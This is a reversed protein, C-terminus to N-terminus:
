KKFGQNNIFRRIMDYAVRPQDYPLIHGANRVIIQYFDHVQRVYGAVETDEPSVKWILRDANKYENAYKWNMTNVFSETLPAAVIIDLQGSYVLVKYNNMLVEFWPKVSQFIDNILHQEVINGQNYTLNGVHIARRTEKLGIYGSYYNFDDPQITYLYNYYFKLGTYNYFYSTGNILDGNLLQDWVKFAELYSKSKIKSLTLQQQEKFLALQKEDILGIQFLFDGYDLMSEPDCLGDGIAIGKLNLGSNSGESHIKYAISPVYKGAYSEGTIYLDTKNYEHFVTFFQQLAEYLDRAVDSENTAYGSDNDTFSFGTGVPNDFYIVNYENAWTYKRLKAQLDKTIILPGHEIFLGFM